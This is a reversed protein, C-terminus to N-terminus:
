LHGRVFRLIGMTIARPESFMSAIEVSVFFFIAYFASEHKAQFQLMPAAIRSRIQGAILAYGVAIGIVAGGLVDTPHHLGLYVRPLDIFILGYAFAIIGIRPAIFYFGTAFAAFMMAHDSPFASWTRLVANLTQQHSVFGLAPDFAPRPRFPLGAALM